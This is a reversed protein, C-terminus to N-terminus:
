ARRPLLRIATRRDGARRAPADARGPAPCLDNAVAVGHDLRLVFAGTCISVVRAGAEHAKRVAAVLDAPPDESVDRCAPVIM